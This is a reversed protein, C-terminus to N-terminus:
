YYPPTLSAPTVSAAVVTSTSPNLHPTSLYGPPTLPPGYATTSIKRSDTHHFSGNTPATTTSNMSPLTALSLANFPLARGNEISYPLPSSSSVYSYNYHDLANMHNPTSQIVHPPSNNANSLPSSHHHHHSHHAFNSYQPLSSSTAPHNWSEPMGTSTAYEYTNYLNPPYGDSIGNGDFGHSLYNGSAAYPSKKNKNKYNRPRRRSSGENEFIEAHAPDIIWFNGKGPKTQGMGKQLKKFCENLSLNHRVSNKWGAYEGRFFDHKSQLNTYIESLTLRGEPSEKIATAIMNIYSFPPKELRRIGSSKKTTDPTTSETKTSTLKKSDDTENSNDANSPYESIIFSSTIQGKDDVVGTTSSCYKITSPYCTNSNVYHNNMHTGLSRPSPTSTSSTPYYETKMDYEPKCQINNLIISSDQPNQYIVGGNASTIISRYINGGNNATIVSNELNHVNDDESKIM